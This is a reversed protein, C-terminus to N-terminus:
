DVYDGGVTFVKKEIIGDTFMDFLLTQIKSGIRTWGNPEIIIQRTSSIWVTYDKEDDYYPKEDEQCTFNPKWYALGLADDGKKFGYKKLKKIGIKPKVCIFTFTKKM